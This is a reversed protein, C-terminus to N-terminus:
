NWHPNTRISLPDRDSGIFEFARWPSNEGKSIKWNNGQSDTAIFELTNSYPNSYCHKKTLEANYYESETISETLLELEESRTRCMHVAFNELKALLELLENIEQPKNNEQPSKNM